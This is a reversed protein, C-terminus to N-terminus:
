LWSQCNKNSAVLGVFGAYDVSNVGDILKEGMGRADLDPQLVHLRFKGAAAALMGASSSGVTAAYVADEILLVDGGAATDLCSQLTASSMPSKNVIHLM